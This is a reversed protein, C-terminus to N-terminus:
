NICRDDAMGGAFSGCGDMADCFRSGLVLEPNRSPLTDAREMGEVFPAGATAESFSSGNTTLGRLKCGGLGTGGTSSLSLQGSTPLETMPLLPLSRTSFTAFGGCSEGFFPIGSWCKMDQKRVYPFLVHFAVPWVPGGEAGGGGCWDLFGTVILSYHYNPWHMM